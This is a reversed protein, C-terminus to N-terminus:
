GVPMCVLTKDALITELVWLNTLRPFHLKSIHETLWIATEALLVNSEEASIPKDTSLKSLQNLLLTQTVDTLLKGFLLKLIVQLIFM